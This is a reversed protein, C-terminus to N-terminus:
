WPVTTLYVAGILQGGLSDSYFNYVPSSPASQVFTGTKGSTWTTSSGNSSGSTLVFGLYQDGSSYSLSNDLDRYIGTDAFRLGYDVGQKGTRYFLGGASSTPTGLTDIQWVGSILGTVTDTGGSTPRKSSPSPKSTPQRRSRSM